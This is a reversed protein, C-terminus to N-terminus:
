TRLQEALAAPDTVPLKCAFRECVYATAKGDRPSRERLLPVEEGAEPERPTAAATVVNPRFPRQVEALLARMDEAQPDGVLAVERSPGLYLDLAALAHGFASPAAEMPERVLRLASIAAREYEAEGTLLALRLLVSAAVSNGSPVANDM